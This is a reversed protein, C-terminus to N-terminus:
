EDDETTQNQLDVILDKIHDPVLFRKGFFAEETRIRYEKLFAELENLIILEDGFEGALDENIDDTIAERTRKLESLLDNTDDVSLTGSTKLVLDIFATFILYATQRHYDQVDFATDDFDEVALGTDIMDLKVPDWQLTLGDSYNQLYNKFLRKVISTIEFISIDECEEDDFACAEAVQDLIADAENLVKRIEDKKWASGSTHEKLGDMLKNFAKVAERELKKTKTAAERELVAATREVGNLAPQPTEEPDHKEENATIGALAVSTQYQDIYRYVTARSVGLAEVIEEPTFGENHLEIVETFHTNM